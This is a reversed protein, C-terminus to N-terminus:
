GHHAAVILREGKVGVQINANLDMGGGGNHNGGDATSKEIPRGDHNIQENMM